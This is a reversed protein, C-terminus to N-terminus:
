TVDFGIEEEGVLLLPLLRLVLYLSQPRASFHGSSYRLWRGPLMSHVRRASQTGASSVCPCSGTGVPVHVKTNGVAVQLVQVQPGREDGGALRAGPHTLQRQRVVEGEHAAEGGGVGCTDLIFALTQHQSIHSTQRGGKKKEKWLLVVQIGCM